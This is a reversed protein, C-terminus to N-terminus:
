KGSSRWVGWQIMPTKVIRTALQCIMLRYSSRGGARGPVLRCVLYYVLIGALVDILYHGGTTLTSAIVLANLVASAAKLPRPCAAVLLMAWITHFSPFTILGETEALDLGTRTGARLEQFHELYRVMDASPDAASPGIAPAALFCALVILGAVMMRELFQELPERRGLLGLVAITAATQVLLSYYAVALFAGLHTHQWPRITSFGLWHDCGILWDDILPPALRAALYTLTAFGVSFVVTLLLAFLCLRFPEVRRYHYAALGLAAVIMALRPIGTVTFGSGLAGIIAALAVSGAIIWTLRGM